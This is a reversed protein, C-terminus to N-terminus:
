NIRTWVSVKFIDEKKLTNIFILNNLSKKKKLQFFGHENLKGKPLLDEEKNMRQQLMWMGTHINKLWGSSACHQVFSRLLPKTVNEEIEKAAGNRISVTSMVTQSHDCQMLPKNIGRSWMDDGTSFSAMELLLKDQKINSALDEVKAPM